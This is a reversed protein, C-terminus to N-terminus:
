QLKFIGVKKTFLFIMVETPYIPKWVGLLVGLKMDETDMSGSLIESELPPMYKKLYPSIAPRDKHFELRLSDNQHYDLHPGGLARPQDGLKDGGRVVNYTWYIKKVDPYLKQIYPDM